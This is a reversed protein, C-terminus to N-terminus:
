SETDAKRLLQTLLLSRAFSHQMHGLHLRDCPSIHEDCCPLEATHNDERLVKSRAGSRLPAPAPEPQAPAAM